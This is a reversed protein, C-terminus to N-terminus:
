ASLVKLLRSPHIPKAVIEFLCCDAIADNLLRSAASNGSLLLIRIGPDIARVSKALEVGSLGPMIVDMLVIDPKPSESLVQMVMAAEYRAIADFGNRNLIETISDAILYEDDVVLVRKRVPHAATQGNPDAFPIVPSWAGRGTLHPAVGPTHRTVVTAIM